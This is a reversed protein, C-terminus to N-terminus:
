FRSVLLENLKQLSWKHIPDFTSVTGFVKFFMIDMLIGLEMTNAAYVGLPFTFGWWGMNFPFPFKHLITAFAFVLWILGFSWMLLSIFLGLIYAVRGALPDIVDSNQLLDRAVKGIYM